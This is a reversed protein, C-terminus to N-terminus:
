DGGQGNGGGGGDGDGHHHGHRGGHGPPALAGTVTVSSGARLQGSPQVSAVTGAPQGGTRVWAVRVQLGLQRLQLVVARVPQGALAGGNVDVTRAAPSHPPTTSSGPSPTHATAPTVPHRPAAAPGSRSALAWSALVAVIAASILALVAVRRRGPWDRPSLRHRAPPRTPNGPGTIVTPGGALTPRQEDGAPDSPSALWATPPTVPGAPPRADARTVPLAVPGADPRADPPIVPRADPPTLMAGARTDRLWAARQAVDRASAPREAADKATLEAILAAAEAPVAPPLPPLARMQHALAIEMATGTFPLAGALCEYGVIGLSYLDSAPTASAGSVREPALYAPTGILTGTRTLPASGTAHAIGFDTIKVQGAPALLLNGPKIDRHVLGAAHAAALGDAAQAIVDMVYAPDLPGSALLRTLPPGDVLEMVLFPPHAPDAEGYDYIQAIHPHSLAGAHRAEARFRALTEPHQVYEARLLKVAVPRGLVLDTARWVEGMGGAAIQDELRYRGALVLVTRSPSM